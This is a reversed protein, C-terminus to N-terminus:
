QLRAPQAITAPRRRIRTDTTRGAQRLEWQWAHDVITELTRRRPVWDLERRARTSDAVLRDPDGRRRPGYVHPVPCGTVASVTKLVEFVSFGEGNGLNYSGGPGGSWLHELALLHARCLDEVHVYDRICTGDPTDYDRGHITIAPSRGSVARLALPILHTEPEHCEGMRGQPDAGAANFYRLAVYAFDHAERYDALIREVMLKSAGYPNLPERPHQEDIPLYRPDGFIAASSSFVFARVGHKVVADLLNLTNAVNNRYYLGPSRLSEGVQSSGAFHMVADFSETAMVTALAAPDCLDSPTFQDSRVLEAFGTSLNDIVVVRHGAAHLMAGMHSGIYGCGGTLLISRRGEQAYGM